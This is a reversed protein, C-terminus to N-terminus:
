CRSSWGASLSIVLPMLSVVSAYMMERPIIPAPTPQITAPVFEARQMAIPMTEIATPVILTKFSSLLLACYSRTSGTLVSSQDHECCLWPSLPSYPCNGM